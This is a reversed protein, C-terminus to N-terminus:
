APRKPGRRDTRAAEAGVTSSTASRAGLSSGGARSAWSHEVAGSRGGREVGVAFRKRFGDAGERAVEVVGRIHNGSRTGLGVDDGNELPRGVGAGRDDREAAARAHDAPDLRRDAVAEGARDAEIQFPEILDSSTSRVLRAARM